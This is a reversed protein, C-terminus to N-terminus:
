RQKLVIRTRQVRLYGRHVVCDFRPSHHAPVEIISGYCKEKIAVKARRTGTERAIYLRLLIVNAHFIHIISCSLM